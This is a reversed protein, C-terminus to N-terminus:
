PKQVIRPHPAWPARTGEGRTASRERPLPSRWSDIVLAPPSPAALLRSRPGLGLQPLLYLRPRAEHELESCGPARARPERGRTLSISISAAIAKRARDFGWTSMMM